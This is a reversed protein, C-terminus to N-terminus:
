YIVPTQPGGIFKHGSFYIADKYAMQEQEGEVFPNMNIHVHPAATAYDWFSLSGYKHLLIAISNTDILTGTVNSAATFCGIKVRHVYEPGTYLQLKTELDTLDIQGLANEDVYVMESFVERWPLLNSHHEFPSVFVIQM